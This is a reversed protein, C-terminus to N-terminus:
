WVNIQIVNAHIETRFDVSELSASKLKANHPKQRDLEDHNQIAVLLTQLRPLGIKYETM